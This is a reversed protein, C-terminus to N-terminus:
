FSLYARIISLRLTLTLHRGFYFFFCNNLNSVNEKKSEIGQQIDVTALFVYSVQLSRKTKIRLRYFSLNTQSQVM